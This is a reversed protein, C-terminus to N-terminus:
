DPVSGSIFFSGSCDWDPVKFHNRHAIVKNLRLLNYLINIFSNMMSVITSLKDNLIDLM